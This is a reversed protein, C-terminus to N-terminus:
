GGTVLADRLDLEPDDGEVSSLANQEAEADTAARGVVEQEPGALTAAGATGDAATSPDTSGSGAPDSSPTAEDESPDWYQQQSRLSMEDM